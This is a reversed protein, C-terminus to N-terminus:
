SLKGVEEASAAGINKRAQIQEKETLEQEVYQVANSTGTSGGGCNEELEKIRKELNKYNLVETETYIYDEPKKKPKINYTYHCITEETNESQVVAYVSLKGSSQLLINPVNAYIEKEESYPSVVLAHESHTGVMQVENIITGEPATLLIKRGKDWQYLSNGILKLIDM